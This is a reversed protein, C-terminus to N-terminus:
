RKRERIKFKVGNKNVGGVTHNMKARQNELVMLAASLDKERETLAQLRGQLAELTRRKRRRLQIQEKSLGEEAKDDESAQDEEDSFDFGDDEDMSDEDNDNDNTEGIEKGMDDFTKKKTVMSADVGTGALIVDKQVRERERRTQQLITQLYGADQTKLLKVVDVALSGTQGNEKQRETVKVGNKTTSSMM